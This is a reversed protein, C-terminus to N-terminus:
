LTLHGAEGVPAYCSCEVNALAAHRRKKVFLTFKRADQRTIMRGGTGAAAALSRTFDQHLIQRASSENIIRGEGSVWAGRPEAQSHAGM